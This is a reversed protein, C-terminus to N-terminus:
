AGVVESWFRTPAEERSLVQGAKTRIRGGRYTAVGYWAALLVLPLAADHFLFGIIAQRKVAHLRM